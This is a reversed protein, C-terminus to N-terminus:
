RFLIISRYVIFSLVVFLSISCLMVKAYFVNFFVESVKEKCDRLLSIERSASLNFGFDTLLIFYNIFALYFALKGYGVVGLSKVLLPLTLIPVLYNIGQVLMLSLVNSILLKNRMTKELVM